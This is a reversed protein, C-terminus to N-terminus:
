FTVFKLIRAYAMTDCVNIELISYLEFRASITKAMEIRNESPKQNLIEQNEKEMRKFCKTVEAIFKKIYVRSFLILM